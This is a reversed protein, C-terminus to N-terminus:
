IKDQIVAFRRVSFEELVSNKKENTETFLKGFDVVGREGGSVRSSVEAEYEIFMEGKRVLDWRDKFRATVMNTLKATDTWVKIGFCSGSNDSGINVGLKVVAVRKIVVQGLRQDGSELLDLIWFERASQTRWKKTAPETSDILRVWILKQDCTLVAHPITDYIITKRRIRGGTAKRNKELLSEVSEGSQKCITWLM